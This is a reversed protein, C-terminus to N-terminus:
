MRSLARDRNMFFKGLEALSREVEQFLSLKWDDSPLQIKRTSAAELDAQQSLREALEYSMYNDTKGDRSVEATLFVLHSRAQVLALSFSGILLM